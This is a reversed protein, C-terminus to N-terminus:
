DPRRLISDFNFFIAISEKIMPDINMKASAPHLLLDLGSCSTTKAAADSTAKPVARMGSLM